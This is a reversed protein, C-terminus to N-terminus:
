RGRVLAPFLKSTRGNALQHTIPTVLFVTLCVPKTLSQMSGFFLRPFVAPMAAPFCIFVKKMFKVNLSNKGALQSGNASLLFAAWDVFLNRCCKPKRCWKCLFVFIYVSRICIYLELQYKFWENSFFICTWNSIMEGWVELLFSFTPESWWWFKHSGVNEVKLHQELVYRWFQIWIDAWGKMKWLNLPEFTRLYIHPNGLITAGFLWPTKGVLFSWKPTHFPSVAM